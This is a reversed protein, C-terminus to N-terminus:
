KGESNVFKIKYEDKLDYNQGIFGKILVKANKYAKDYIGNQKADKLANNRLEKLSENNKTPTFPNFINADEIYAKYSNPDIEASIIKAEPLKVIINKTTKNVHYKIKDFDYGAKINVTYSYIFRSTTLPIGKGFLRRPEQTNNIEKITCSQTALEGIDKFGLTVTESETFFESKAFLVACIVLIAIIFIIFILRFNKNKFKKFFNGIFTRKKEKKRKKRIEERRYQQLEEYDSEDM